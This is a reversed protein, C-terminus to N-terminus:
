DISDRTRMKMFVFISIDKEFPM